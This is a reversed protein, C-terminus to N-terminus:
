SLMLVKAGKGIAISKKISTLVYKQGLDVAQKLSVGRTLYTTIATSLACGTGHVPGMDVRSSTCPYIKQHQILQHTIIKDHHQDTTKLLLAQHSKLGLHRIEQFIVDETPDSDNTKTLWMWEKINPTLLSVFPLLKEIIVERVHVEEKILSAGVTATHLPDLIIPIEPCKTRIKNLYESVIEIISRHYLMGIKIADPVLDEEISLFQARLIQTDLPSITSINQTNQATIVTAVAIPHAGLSQIVRIDAGIGAGCTPDMGAITLVIKPKAM